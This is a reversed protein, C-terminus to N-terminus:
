GAGGELAPFSIGLVEYRLVGRPVNIEVVDGIKKGLLAQGRPSSTLIRNKEYDEQGPGVLEVEEEEELDLDKLTVRAGFVVTDKPLTSPDIIEARGLRDKLDNIRGQLLSAAERAAHYEANESLDGLDRAAAIRKTVEVWEVNEMHELQAKLREYGEKTM